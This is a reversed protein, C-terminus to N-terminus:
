SEPKERWAPVRQRARSRSERSRRETLSRPCTTYRSLCVKAVAGRMDHEVRRIEDGAEGGEHWAGAGMEGTIVAHEGWVELVAVADDGIRDVLGGALGM